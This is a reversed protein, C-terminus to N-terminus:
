TDFPSSFFIVLVFDSAVHNTTKLASFAFADGWDILALVLASEM